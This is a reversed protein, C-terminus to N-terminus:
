RGNSGGLMGAVDRLSLVRPKEWVNPNAIKHIEKHLNEKQERKMYPFSSVKFQNLIDQAIFIDLAKNM